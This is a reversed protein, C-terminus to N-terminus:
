DEDWGDLDDLLDLEPDYVDVLDLEGDWGEAPQSSWLVTVVAKYWLGAAVRSRCVPRM